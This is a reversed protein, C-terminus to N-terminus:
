CKLVRKATRRHDHEISTNLIPIQKWPLTKL